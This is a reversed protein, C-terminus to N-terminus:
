RWWVHAALMFVGVALFWLGLEQGTEISFSALDFRRHKRAIREVMFGTAPVVAAFFFAALSIMLFVKPITMYSGWFLYCTCQLYM